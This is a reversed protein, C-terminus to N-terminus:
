PDAKHVAVLRHCNSFLCGGSDGPAPVKLKVSFIGGYFYEYERVTKYFNTEFELLM